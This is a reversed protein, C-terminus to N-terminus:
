PIIASSGVRRARADVAVGHPRADNPRLWHVAPDATNGTSREPTVPCGVLSEGTTSPQVCRVLCSTTLRQWDGTLASPGFKFDHIYNNEVLTREVMREQNAGVWGRGAGHRRCV